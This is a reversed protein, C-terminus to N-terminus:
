VYKIWKSLIINRSMIKIENFTYPFLIFKNEGKEGQVQLM